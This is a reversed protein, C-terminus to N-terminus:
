PTTTSLTFTLAKSYTGTRLADTSDIHQRLGITVNDNSVPGSYLLLNAPASGVTGYAGTNAKALLATPLSFAGNVLHGPANASPDAVSLTADGATSIVTAALQADYDKAIGATFGGFSAASGLSLSLTAPVTGGVSQPAILAFDRHNVDFFVNGLAEVKVRARPAVVNPMTVDTSGDNPTSAALVYPWTAGGDTSLSIKVDTVNVPPQDTGAVDWTIQASGTASMVLPLAQSTVRFPGALNAVTVKTEAHGVGGGGVHGDRATLRFTMQRNGLVGVWAATPLFESFCDIVPVAVPNPGATPCAGTAADTNDIMIQAMDPFVRTPNRDVVNEGPSPTKLTDAPSVNAYTGFQRFLPGNTKTNSVLGTGASGVDNQEWMYTVQEGDPDSASGTLSFPTRTPITYGAPVTVDPAHNGTPTVIFGQNQIPGGKATEGVFGTAGTLTLTLPPLDLNALSAGFTVQFGSDDFTGGGFGQVTGTAGPPLMGRAGKVAETVTGSAGTVDTLSIPAVDTGQHTGSFTLAYGSDTVSAASVTGGAPWGAIASGGKANERVASTCTCEAISLAGVDTNASAGGFTVTFGGNGAGASSAGGAFGAIGNIAAAVNGNTVALGGAGLLVSSNGGLSIRFSQTAPSFGTLTVQQQENGGQLASQIGAATNNQGRVIPVTDAGKYNLRYADGNADYGTLAVTQVESPGQVALQIGAATYNTGRVIPASDVSGWTLKLSDSDDWNRLSVNEVESIPNRPNGTYASIEDFSRQSWYPDSHPQLNDTQCIGAYAMISSGSGPEVSTGANRNIGGCSSVTGNFTHNGAFQHGMEHAVYDVAYFDGVPAPLGTCGQAKGNGGVVGLSAIGGGDKGLGIHGIDYNGAGIIQGIVIRNRSLTPSDCFALQGATYCAAAGCPGNAGIAQADTDLNLKDNDAILIMRIATEDEYVQDVRNLLTVKAATVNASGGFYTAYSPDTVLALRYTRLQIEPGAAAAVGLDLPDSKGEIEGEDFRGHANDLDRGFYSVYVSDDLHYYPDVYWAGDPSRVSAHFGLPTSDARLTANPDDLGVGAYTKIDPHEAALGAEMIPSEEIQFRQLTGDPRPLSIITKSSAALSRQKLGVKPASRLKAQMASADLTFAKVSSAEIEPKAGTASTSPPGAVPSWAGSQAHAAPAGLALAGAAFLGGVVGRVSGHM